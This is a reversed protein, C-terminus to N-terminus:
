QGIMEDWSASETSWQGDVSLNNEHHGDVYWDLYARETASLEAYPDPSGYYDAMREGNSPWYAADTIKDSVVPRWAFSYRPWRARPSYPLTIQSHKRHFRVFDDVMRFTDSLVAYATMSHEDHYGCGFNIGSCGIDLSSIDSFSGQGVRFGNKRMLKRLRKHDHQYLVVDTGSRDFSFAWRYSKGAVFKEASSCGIEEGTTLLWDCNVGLKPLLRTIIYVGLRDDLRPSVIVRERSQGVKILSLWAASQVTDLHAVALIDSGNDQFTYTSGAGNGQTVVTGLDAFDQEDRSVIESLESFSFAKSARM